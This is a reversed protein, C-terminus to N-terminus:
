FAADSFRLIAVAYPPLRFEAKGAAGVQLEEAKMESAAHLAAMQSPTPDHPRGMEQWVGRASTTNDDIRWLFATM